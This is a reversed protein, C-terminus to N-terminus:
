EVLSGSLFLLTAESVKSQVRQSQYFYITNLLNLQAERLQIGDIQGQLYAESSREFNRRAALRNRSALQMLQVATEYDQHANLLETKLNLEAQKLRDGEAELRLEQNQKQRSRNGAQYLPFRLSVGASPGYNQQSEIFGAETSQFNYQYAASLDIQPAWRSKSIKLELEQQRVVSESLLYNANKQFAKDEIGAYSMNQDFEFDTSINLQTDPPFSLSNMLSRYAKKHAVEALIFSSSDNRLDVEANLVELKTFAGLNFRDEARKLREQSIELARKELSLNEKELFYSLYNQLLQIITSEMKARYRLNQQYSGERLQRLEFRNSGGSYLTYNVTVAANANRSAANSANIEPQNPSAFTINTSTQSFEGNGTLDVTPLLGATGPNSNNEAIQREVEAIQIGYNQELSIKILDSLSLSDTPKAQSIASNCIFVLILSYVLRFITKCVKM